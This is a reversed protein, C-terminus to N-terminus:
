FPPPAADPACSVNPKDKAMLGLCTEMLESLFEKPRRLTWAPNAIFIRLYVGGVVVEDPTALNTLGNTDPPRWPASPNQLQAMHHRRNSFVCTATSVREAHTHPFTPLFLLVPLLFRSITTFTQLM